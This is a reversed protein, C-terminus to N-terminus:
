IPALTFLADRKSGSRQNRTLVVRGGCEAKMHEQKLGDLALVAGLVQGPLVGTWQLMHRLGRELARMDRPEIGGAGRCKM